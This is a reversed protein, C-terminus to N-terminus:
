LVADCRVSFISKTWIEQESMKESARPGDTEFANAAAKEGPFKKNIELRLGTWGEEGKAKIYTDKLICFAALESEQLWGFRLAPSAPPQSGWALLAMIEIGDRLAMRVEPIDYLNARCEPSGEVVQRAIVKLIGFYEYCAGASHGTTCSEKAQLIRPPITNAKVKTVFLPGALNDKLTDSQTDCISHPPNFLFLLIVTGTIAILALATKPLQSLQQELSM